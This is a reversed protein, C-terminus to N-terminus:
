ASGGRGYRSRLTQPWCVRSRQPSGSHRGGGPLHQFAGEAARNRSKELFAAHGLVRDGVKFRTVARGVAVVEGAVDSGPVTPYTLWPAFFDGMVPLLRDVPNVAVAHNRVLIENAGPAPVPAPGIQLSGRKASLWLAQNKTTADPVVATAEAKDVRGAIGQLEAAEDADFM